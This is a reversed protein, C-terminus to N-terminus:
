VGGRFPRTFPYNRSCNECCCTWRGTRRASSAPQGTGCYICVNQFAPQEMVPEVPLGAFFFAWGYVSLDTGLWRDLIRTGAYLTRQVLGISGRPLWGIWKQRRPLGRPGTQLFEALKHLYVFSSHLKQWAVLHVRLRQEVLRIVEEKRFRNVHGGGSFVFRYVADCFGYGNPVSILCRGGRKLVRAMEGLSEELRVLHELAHHCILLDISGDRVPLQHSGGFVRNYRVATTFTTLDEDVALWHCCFEAGPFSGEGSGVDLVWQDSKLEAIWDYIDASIPPHGLLPM